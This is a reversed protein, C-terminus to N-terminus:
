SGADDAKHEVRVLCLGRAPATPGARARDRSELVETIAEPLTRGFGVEILTGAINRVMHYLFGSGCIEYVLMSTKPRWLIRSEFVRRVAASDTTRRGDRGSQEASGRSGAFSSFDHEGVLLRAATAMLRRDLPRPEHHVFRAIFPSCVPSQLIRYRYTKSIAGYRAHFDAPAEVAALIRIAPPLNRNLARLLNACPIRNATSFNAVQRAAHVGADTRGSATLRVGHGLIKELAEEICAQVTPRTGQRQWGCFDTGDYAIDLRLNRGRNVRVGRAQRSPTM